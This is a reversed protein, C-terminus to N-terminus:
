VEFSPGVPVSTVKQWQEGDYFALYIPLQNRFVLYLYLPSGPVDLASESIHRVNTSIM